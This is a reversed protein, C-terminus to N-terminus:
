NMKRRKISNRTNNKCTTSFDQLLSIWFLIRLCNRLPLSIECGRCFKATSKELTAFIRLGVQNEVHRMEWAQLEWVLSEESGEMVGNKIRMECEM